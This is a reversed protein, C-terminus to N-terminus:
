HPKIVPTTIYTGWIDVHVPHVTILQVKRYIGGGPYWRSDHNRTDAHIALVNKGGFRVHDTIDLYFSNYGYDWKGALEGNVYIRPFAMIGDCILYLRKGADSAPIELTKRYWGQGKWPLKGTNGDGDPIFASDVGWDHPVSVSRWKTDNFDFKYAADDQGKFFKWDSDLTTVTRPQAISSFTAFMSTLMILPLISKNKMQVKMKIKM